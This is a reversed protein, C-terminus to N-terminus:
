IDAFTQRLFKLGDVALIDQSPVIPRWFCVADAIAVLDPTFSEIVGAGRYGIQKLAAHVGAWNVQGTGPIGRDNECTHLHILRNGAKVLAKFTDKEEIHMHFTDLQLGVHPSGVDEIYKLAQDVTNIMDIEFRNIPEIGLMVGHDGAYAAMVRVSEVSREYEIQREAPPLIRRKGVISYMPGSVCPSGLYEAAQIAWRLYAMGNDRIAKEPSSLDRDGGFVGCVIIDIGTEEAAAKVAKLDIKEPEETAMEFIDYGFDKVKRLLPIHQTTFPSVWSFSNIGIRM